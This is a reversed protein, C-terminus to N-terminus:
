YWNVLFSQGEPILLAFHSKRGFNMRSLLMSTKNSRSVWIVSFRSRPSPIVVRIDVKDSTIMVASWHGSLSLNETIERIGTIMSTPTDIEKTLDM